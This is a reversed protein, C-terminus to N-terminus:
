RAFRVSPCKKRWSRAFFNRAARQASKFFLFIIEPNEEPFDFFSNRLAARAGGLDRLV